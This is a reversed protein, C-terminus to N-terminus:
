KRDRHIERKPAKRIFPIVCHTARQTQSRKILTSNKLNVQTTAHILVENQKHSFLGNNPDVNQKDM